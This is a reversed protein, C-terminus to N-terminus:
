RGGKEPVIGNELEGLKLKVVLVRQGLFSHKKDDVCGSM